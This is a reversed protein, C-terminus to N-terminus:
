PNHKLNGSPAPRSPNTATAIHKFIDIVRRAAETKYGNAMATQADTTAPLGEGFSLLVADCAAQFPASDVVDVFKPHAKLFKEKATM